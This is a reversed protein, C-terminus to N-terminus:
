ETPPARPALAARDAQDTLGPRAPPVDAHVAPVVPTGAPEAAPTASATAESAPTVSAATVTGVSAAAAGPGAVPASEVTAPAGLLAVLLLSAVFPLRTRRIAARVDMGSLRDIGARARM